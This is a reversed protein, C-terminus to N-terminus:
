EGDGKDVVWLQGGQRGAYAEEQRELLAKVDPITPIDIPTGSTSWTPRAPWSLEIAPSACPGRSSRRSTWAAVSLPRGHTGGEPYFWRLRWDSSSANKDPRRQNM